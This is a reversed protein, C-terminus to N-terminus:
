MLLRSHHMAYLVAYIPAAVAPAGLHLRHRRISLLLALSLSPPCGAPRVALGAPRATPSTPVPQPATRQSTSRQCLRHPVPM